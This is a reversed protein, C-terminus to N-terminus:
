FDVEIYIIHCYASYYGLRVFSTNFNIVNDNYSTNM